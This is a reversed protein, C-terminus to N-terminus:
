ERYLNKEYIYERVEKPVLSDIKKNIKINQRIQSSSIDVPTFDLLEFDYGNEKLIDFKENIDESNQINRTCVLFKVLKKM